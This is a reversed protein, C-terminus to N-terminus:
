LKSRSARRRAAELQLRDCNGSQQNYQITITDQLKKNVYCYATHLHLICYNLTYFCKPRLQKGYM